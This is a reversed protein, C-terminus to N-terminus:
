LRQLSSLFEEAESFRAQMGSILESTSGYTGSACRQAPAPAPPLTQPQRPQSRTAAPGAASAHQPLTAMAGAPSCAAVLGLGGAQQNLDFLPNSRTHGQVAAQQRGAQWPEQQPSVAPLAARRCSGNPLGSAAAWPLSLVPQRQQQLLLQQQQPPQLEYGAELFRVRGELVTVRAQLQERAQEAEQRCGMCCRRHHNTSAEEPWHSWHHNMHLGGAGICAWLV